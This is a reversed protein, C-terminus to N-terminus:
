CYGKSVSPGRILIEGQQPTSNAFYNADPVDILKIEASPVPVGVSNFRHNAPPLIACM